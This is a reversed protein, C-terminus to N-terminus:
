LSATRGGDVPLNIGNIYSAFSSALFLVAYGIEEPKAFRRLPIHAKFEQEIQEPSTNHNKAQQSIIAKLRQTKTAGPLINNVTIGYPGLENALTKAWQAMAGRVTNSVGLNPLPEKVSTSLINIIRGYNAKKMGDVLAQVLLHSTLLHQEISHIFQEPSADTISGPAPGGSNNLLIHVSGYAPLREIVKQQTEFPHSFDAQIFGHKQEFPRPLEEVLEELAHKNRAMLVITAGAQALLVASAMGIGQTGGCVLAVKGELNGKIEDIM